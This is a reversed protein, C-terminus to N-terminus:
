KRLNRVINSLTPSKFFKFPLKEDKPVFAMKGNERRVRVAEDQVVFEGSKAFSWIVCQAGNDKVVALQAYYGDGAHGNSSVSVLDRPSRIFDNLARSKVVRVPVYYLREAEISDNVLYVSIPATNSDVQSHKLGSGCGAASLIVALGLAAYRNFDWIACHNQFSYNM